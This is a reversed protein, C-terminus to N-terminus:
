TEPIIILIRRLINKLESALETPKSPFEFLMSSELLNHVISILLRSYLATNMPRFHGKAVQEDLFTQISKIFKDFFLNPDKVMLLEFMEHTHFMRFSREDRNMLETLYDILHDITVFPDEDSEKLYTKLGYEFVEFFDKTINLLLDYKTEWYLYFTGKAYGADQVINQVTTAEFGKERFLRLASEKLLNKTLESKTSKDHM